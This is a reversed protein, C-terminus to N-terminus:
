TKEVGIKVVNSAVPIVKINDTGARIEITGDNDREFLEITLKDGNSLIIDISNGALDETVDIKDLLRINEVKKVAIISM